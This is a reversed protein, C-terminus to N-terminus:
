AVGGLLGTEVDGRVSDINEQMEYTNLLEAGFGLDEVESIVRKYDIGNSTAINKYFSIKLKHMLLIVNVSYERSEANTLVLGKDKFENRMGNEISSSCAVCTM